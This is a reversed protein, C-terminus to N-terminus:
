APAALASTPGPSPLRPLCLTMPCSLLWSNLCHFCSHLFLLSPHGHLFPCTLSHSPPFSLTLVSGFEGAMEEQVPLAEPSRHEGRRGKSTDAFGPFLAQPVATQGGLGKITPLSPLPWQPPPCCLSCCQSQAGPLGRGRLDM